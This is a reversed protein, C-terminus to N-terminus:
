RSSRWGMIPKIREILLYICFILMYVLLVQFVNPHLGDISAGPLSVMWTLIANLSQVIYLLLYALSPFLLVILVMVLIVFAAPVVIIVSTVKMVVSMEISEM